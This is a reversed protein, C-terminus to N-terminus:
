MSLKKVIDVFPEDHAIPPLELDATTSSDM